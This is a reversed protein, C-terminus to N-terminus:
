MHRNTSGVTDHLLTASAVATYYKDCIVYRVIGCQLSYNAICLVVVSYASVGCCCSLAEDVVSHASYEACCLLSHAVLRLCNCCTSTVSTVRWINSSCCILTNSCKALTVKHAVSSSNSCSTGVTHVCQYSTYPLHVIWCCKVSSM